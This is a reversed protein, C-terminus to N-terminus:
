NSMSIKKKSSPILHKPLENPVEFNRLKISILYLALAFEDSDLMGDKDIDAMEWIKNLVKSPLNSKMM